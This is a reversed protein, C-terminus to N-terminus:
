SEAKRRLAANMANFSGPISWKLVPWALYLLAGRYREGQSFVVRDGDVRVIRFYHEGDLMGPLLTQGTWIMERPAKLEKLVLNFDMRDVLPPRITVALRSAPAAKGDVRVIFPNWEGYRGFDTLLNWVKEPSAHIEMETDIAKASFCGVAMVIVVGAVLVATICRSVNTM